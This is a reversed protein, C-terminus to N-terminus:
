WTPLNQIIEMWKKTLEEDEYINVGDIAIGWCQDLSTFPIYDKLKSFDQMFKPMLEKDRINLKWPGFYIGTESDYGCWETLLSNFDSDETYICDYFSDEEKVNMKYAVLCRESM